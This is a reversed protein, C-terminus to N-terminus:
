KKVARHIKGLANMARIWDSSTLESLATRGFRKTLYDELTDAPIRDAKALETWIHLCIQFRPDNLLQPRDKTQLFLDPNGTKRRILIKLADIAKNADDSHKLFRHHDLGTQRKLFAIMAQDSRNELVALNYGAIWLAQLKKALPGSTAIAETKPTLTKLASIVTLQESRTMDKSSRKGTHCELLDRYSDDDLAAQSKLVHIQAIATM